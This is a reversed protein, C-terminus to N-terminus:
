IKLRSHVDSIRDIVAIAKSIITSGADFAGSQCAQLFWGFHGAEKLSLSAVPTTVSKGNLMDQISSAFDSQDGKPRFMQVSPGPMKSGHFKEVLAVAEDFSGHLFKNRIERAAKLLQAEETTMLQASIFHEVVAQETKSAKYEFSSKELAEEKNALFRLKIELLAAQAGLHGFSQFAARIPDLKESVNM